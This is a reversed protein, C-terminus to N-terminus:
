PAELAEFATRLREFTAALPEPPDLATRASEDDADGKRRPVYHLHLHGEVGAGACRGLNFGINAGDAGYATGVAREITAVLEAMEVREEPALDATRPVHRNSVLMLHGATYPYINLIVYHHRARLLVQDSAENGAVARDCFICGESPLALLYKMRWPSWLNRM